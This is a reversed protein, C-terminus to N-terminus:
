IVLEHLLIEERGQRNAKALTEGTASYIVNGGECDYTWSKGTRNTVLMPAGITKAIQGFEDFDPLGGRNNPYFIIQPNLKRTREICRASDGDACIICTAKIGDIMFTEPGNGPDYRAWENRYGIDERDLWIWTKRYRYLFKQPGVFVQTIYYRDHDKESLGFSIFCGLKEALRAMYQTSKGDPVNEAYQDLTPTYDSVTGEHFMIWRAGSAAANKVLSGMKELNNDVQGPQADFQILAIKIKPM